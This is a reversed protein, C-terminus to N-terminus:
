KNPADRLTQVLFNRIQPSADKLLLTLMSTKAIESSARRMSEVLGACVGSLSIISIVKEADTIKGNLFSSSFLFFGVGIWVILVLLLVFFLIQLRSRYRSLQLMLLDKSTSEVASRGPNIRNLLFNPLAINAKVLIALMGAAGLVVMVPYYESTIALLGHSLQIIIAVCVWALSSMAYLRFVPVLSRVYVSISIM